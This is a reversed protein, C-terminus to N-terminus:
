SEPFIIHDKANAFNYDDGRVFPVIISEINNKQLSDKMQRAEQVSSFTGVRVRHWLGKKPINISVTYAPFGMRKLKKAMEVAAHSNKLAATQLTICDSLDTSDTASSLAFHGITRKKTSRKTVLDKEPKIVTNNRLQKKNKAHPILDVHADKLAEFNIELKKDQSNVKRAYEKQKNVDSEIWKSLQTMFPETNFRIPCTNRGVSIGLFFMWVSTFALCLCFFRYSVTKKESTNGYHEDIWSSIGEM